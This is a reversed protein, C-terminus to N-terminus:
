QGRRRVARTPARDGLGVGALTGAVLATLEPTPKPPIRHGDIAEALVARALAELESTM